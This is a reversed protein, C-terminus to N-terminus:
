FTAWLGIFQGYQDCQDSNTHVNRSQKWYKAMFLLSFKSLLKITFNHQFNKRIFFGWFNDFYKKLNQWLPSIEGSRSVSAKGWQTFIVMRVTFSVPMICLSILFCAECKKQMKRETKSPDIRANAVGRRPLLEAFSSTLNIDFHVFIHM